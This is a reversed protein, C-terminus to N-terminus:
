CSHARDLLFFCELGVRGGSASGSWGSRGGGTRAQGRAPWSGFHRLAAGVTTVDVACVAWPDQTVVLDPALDHLAAKTSTTSTKASPWGLGSRPMSRPRPSAKLRRRRRCSGASVPRTPLDREFTVGDGAGIAFLIKMSLLLSVVRM